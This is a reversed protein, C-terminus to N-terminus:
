VQLDSVLCRQVAPVPTSTPLQLTQPNWSQLGWGWRRVGMGTVRWPDGFGQGVSIVVVEAMVVFVVEGIISVVNVGRVVVFNIYNTSKVM